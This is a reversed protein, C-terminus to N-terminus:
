QLKGLMALVLRQEALSFNMGICQRSGNSFPLWTLGEHSEQEGGEAFREPIFHEPNHWYKPDHHIANIDISIATDKPIFQGALSIDKVTDRTFLTDAPTNM